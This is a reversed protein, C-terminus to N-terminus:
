RYEPIQYKDNPMRLWTYNVTAKIIIIIIIIIILSSDYLRWALIVFLTRWCLLTSEFIFFYVWWDDCDSSHISSDVVESICKAIM